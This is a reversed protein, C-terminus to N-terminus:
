DIRVFKVIGPNNIELKQGTPTLLGTKQDRKFVTVSNSGGCAVVLFNGGPDIDFTRAATGLEPQRGILTPKGTKQNISYILVENANGRNSAYLFKGDPSVHVDAGHDDIAPAVGTFPDEKLSLTDIPTLEGDKYNFTYLFGGMETVLYAFKKNQHFTLHRPGSGPILKVFPTKAPSLSPSKKPDFNYIYVKDTGLDQAFVYRNDPSLVVSHVYPKTQRTKNVSTGEHQITQVDSGLSGDANVPIASLSGAGYNATFIYKASADISVYAPGGSANQKNLFTLEGTKSNYAYSNITSGTGLSYVFKRNPSIALYSTGGVVKNKLTLEGTQSNLEYVFIGEPKSVNASGGILLNYKQAYLGSTLILLFSLIAISKLKM